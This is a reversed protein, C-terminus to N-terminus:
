FQAILSLVLALTRRFQEPTAVDFIRPALPKLLPALEDEVGTTYTRRPRGTPDVLVAPRLHYRIYIVTVDPRSALRIARLEVGPEFFVTSSLVIVVRPTRVAENPFIIQRSIRNLFFDASYRRNALSRADIIGPNVHDLASSAKSWDLTQNNELNNEQRYTVRRRALDLLELSFKANHWEVQSLVKTAPLLAELNRNQMGTSASFREPPTLNVLLAVNMPHRTEVALKLRGAVSPLYWRDFSSQPGPFEVAPLDSWIDPLPDNKLPAVHLNRKIISHEGSASYFVAVSVRYDGPLVFFPQTFVANDPKIGAQIRDLDIAQHNQWTRSKSDSLQVLIMLQGEGRRRALESGEVQVDLNVILRQHSSLEPDSLHLTWRIRAQNNENLWQEFPITSFISDPSGDQNGAQNGAQGQAILRPLAAIGLIALRSFVGRV